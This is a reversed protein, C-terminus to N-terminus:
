NLIFKFLFYKQLPHDPLQNLDQLPWTGHGYRLCSWITITQKKTSKRLYNKIRRVSSPMFILLTRKLLNQSLFSRNSM